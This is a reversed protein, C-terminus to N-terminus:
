PALQLRNFRDTITTVRYVQALRVREFGARHLLDRSRRTAYISRGTATPQSEALIAADRAGNFGDQLSPSETATM